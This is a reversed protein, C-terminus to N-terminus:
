SHAHQMGCLFIMNLLRLRFHRRLNRLVGSPRSPEDAAEPDGISLSTIGNKVPRKLTQEEHVMRPNLAM